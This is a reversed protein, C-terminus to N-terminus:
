YQQTFIFNYIFSVYKTFILFLHFVCKTLTRESKKVIDYM